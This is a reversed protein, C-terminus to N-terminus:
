EFHDFFSFEQQAGMKVVIGHAYAPNEVGSKTERADEETGGIDSYRLTVLRPPGLTPLQSLRRLAESVIKEGNPGVDVVEDREANIIYLRDAVDKMFIETRANAFPNQPDLLATLDEKVTGLKSRNNAQMEAIDTTQKGLLKVLEPKGELSGNEDMPAVMVM